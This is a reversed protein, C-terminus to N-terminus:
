GNDKEKKLRSVEQELKDVKGDIYYAFHAEILVCGLVILFGVAINVNM